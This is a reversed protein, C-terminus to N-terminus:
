SSPIATAAQRSEHDALASDLAAKMANSSSRNERQAQEAAAHVLSRVENAQEATEFAGCVLDLSVRREGRGARVFVTRATVRSAESIASASHPPDTWLIFDGARVTPVKDPRVNTQFRRVTV